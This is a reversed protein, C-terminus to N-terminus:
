EVSYSVLVKQNAGPSVVIGNTFKLGIPYVGITTPITVMESGSPPASESASNYITGADDGAEIVSMKVLVGSGTYVLTGSTSTGSTNGGVNGNSYGLWTQNLNNIAIVANKVATLM